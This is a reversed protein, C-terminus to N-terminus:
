IVEPPHVMDAEEDVELAGLSTIMPLLFPAIGSTVDRVHDEINREEQEEQQSIRMKKTINDQHLLALGIMLLGLQFRQRISGESEGPRVEYKLYRNLHVNDMNIYFRYTDHEHEATDEELDHKVQLATNGTFGYTAYDKEYVLIPKPLQIGSLGQDDNGEHRGPHGNTGSGTHSRQEEPPQVEVVMQNEFPELQTADTLVGVYTYKDGVECNSPL